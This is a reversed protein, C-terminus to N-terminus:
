SRSRAPAAPCSARGCRVRITRMSRPTTSSPSTCPPSATSRPPMNGNSPTSRPGPMSRSPRFSWQPGTCSPRGSHGARLRLLPLVAGPHLDPRRRHFAPVGRRLFREVAPQPPEADGGQSIGHHRFHVPHQGASGSCAFTRNRGVPGPARRACRLCCMETWTIGGAPVDAELGRGLAAPSFEPSHAGPPGGALEPYIEALMAFYDLSKFRGVLVLAATTARSSRTKTEFPRYAPNINVARRGDPRDRIAAGGVAAREHGIAVHEGPRIGLALLGRAALDVEAAFERYSVRLGLGPFVLADHADHLRATEALVQPLTLGAVWPSEDAFSKPASFM